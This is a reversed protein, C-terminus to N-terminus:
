LCNIARDAAAHFAEFIAESVTPHPHVINIIDEISANLSMDTVIESILDTAHICFLHAGLVKGTDKDIIIKIFGEEEGAIKAKGNAMMPFKGVKINKYQKAAQEETLGVCAIEPQIYIASPIEDYNIQRNGGCINEVAILGEMSATHALMSKGNIDGIAYINPVNTELKLNTEIAGKTIKIGAKEANLNETDPVRGVAMLVLSAPIEFKEGGKDYVVSNEKIESVAAGTHIAIGKKTLAKVLYDTIESDVMPLIRDLFEVVTVKTGISNLFFAFEIGIVGGGIIVIDVPTYNLNLIEKSTLVNARESVQIPLMKVKSGSAIIINKATYNQGEVVVTNKDVFSGVGKIVTIKNAKMLSEVGSVLQRIIKSKRKQVREMDLVAESTEAHTVGFESCRKVEKLAEASRLLVKTPICGENLCIGGFHEKEIIGTKKGSQAAKIAAEYGGPGGGIVLVEFDFSSSIKTSEEM